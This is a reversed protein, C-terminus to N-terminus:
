INDLKELRELENEVKKRMHFPIRRHRQAIPKVDSRIHLKLPNIKLTGIGTFLEPFQSKWNSATNSNIKEIIQLNEASQYSLLNGSNGQVVYFTEINFVIKSEVMAEFKGIIKM